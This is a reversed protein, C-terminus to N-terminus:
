LVNYLKVTEIVPCALANSFSVRVKSASVREFKALKKYGITSGKFVQQWKGAKEVEISFSQIRQGLRIFEKIEMCNFQTQEKLQFTLSATKTNDNTAWYSEKNNDLVKSASFQEQKGRFESATAKAGELLNRTFSKTLFDQFEDLVHVDNANIQGTRDPPLNLNWCAGNGVSKFYIEKLSALNRVKSDENPHYFWGPRSRFLM